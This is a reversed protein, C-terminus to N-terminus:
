LPKRHRSYQFNSGQNKFLISEESKSNFLHNGFSAKDGVFYGGRGIEDTTYDGVNTLFLDILGDRNFDFFHPEPRIGQTASDPSRLSTVSNEPGTMKLSSTAVVSALSTSIPIAM